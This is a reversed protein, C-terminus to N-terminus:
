MSKSRYNHKICEIALDFMEKQEDDFGEEVEINIYPLNKQAAYVSLSGDDESTRQYVVNYNKSKFFYYDDLSTTYFLNKPNHSPNMYTLFMNKKNYELISFKSNPRNSHLAILYKNENWDLNDLIEQRIKKVRSTISNRTSRSSNPYYKQFYLELGNDTFIRNPDIGYNRNGSRIYMNRKDSNEIYVSHGGYTDLAYELTKGASKENHHVWVYSAREYDSKKLIHVTCITGYSTSKEIKEPFTKKTITPISKKVGTYLLAYHTTSKAFGYKSANVEIWEWAKQNVVFKQYTEKTQIDTIDILLGSGYESSLPKMVNTQKPNEIIAESYEDIRTGLDKYGEAVLLTHGEKRADALLQYLDEILFDQIYIDRGGLTASKKLKKLNSPVHFYPITKVGDLILQDDNQRLKITEVEMTMELPVYTTLNNIPHRTKIFSFDEDKTVIEDSFIVTGFTLSGQNSSNSSSSSYTPAEKVIVMFRKKTDSSLHIQFLFFFFFLSIAKKYM